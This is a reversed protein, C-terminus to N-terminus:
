RDKAGVLCLAPARLKPGPTVLERTYWRQAQRSDHRMSTLMTATSAEDMDDLLGGMARLTDRFARTSTWRDGVVRHVLSSIRGPLRANPFGGALIVGAVDRGDAELRRALAVAVAT